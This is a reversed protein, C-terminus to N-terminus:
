GVAKKISDRLQASAKGVEAEVEKWKAEGAVKMEELKDEVKKQSQKIDAIQRGMRNKTEGVGAESQKELSAIKKKATDIDHEARAAVSSQTRTVPAYRFPPMAALAEKTAGALVMRAGRDHVQSAPIAVAHKGMGVFGGVGVILYSVNKDPDIILDEVKGVKDGAENYMSKGLISQRASWGMAVREMETVTVGLPTVGAVQASATGVTTLAFAVGLAAIRFNKNM